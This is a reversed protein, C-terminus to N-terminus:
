ICQRTKIPVETYRGEKESKWWDTITQVYELKIYEDLTENFETIPGVQKRIVFYPMVNMESFKVPKEDVDTAVVVSLLKDDQHFIMKSLNVMIYMSMILRVLISVVGGIFTKYTQGQNRFNFTIVHGFLDYEVIAHRTKHAILKITKM